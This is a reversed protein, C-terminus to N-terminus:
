QAGVPGEGFHRYKDIVHAMLGPAIIMGGSLMIGTGILTVLGAVIFIPSMLLGTAFKGLPGAVLKGISVVGAAVGLGGVGIGAIIGGGVMLPITIPASIVALAKLATSRSSSKGIEKPPAYGAKKPMKPIHMDHHVKHTKHIPKM